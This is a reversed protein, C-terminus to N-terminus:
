RLSPKGHSESSHSDRGHSRSACAKNTNLLVDCQHVNPCATDRCGRKDNYPKCIKAGGIETVTKLKPKGDKGKGTGKDKIALLSSSSGTRPSTSKGGGKSQQRGLQRPPQHAQAQRNVSQGRVNLVEIRSNWIASHEQMVRALSKGFPVKEPGRSLEVAQSSFSSLCEDLYKLVSQESYTAKLRLIKSTFHRMYSHADHWSVYLCEGVAGKQLPVKFAGVIGWTTTMVYFKEAWVWLDTTPPEDEHHDGVFIEMDPGIRTRKLAREKSSEGLSRIKHICFNRPQQARFDRRFM